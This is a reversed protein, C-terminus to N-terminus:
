LTIVRSFVASRFITVILSTLLSSPEGGHSGQSCGYDGVCSHSGETSIDHHARGKVSSLIESSTITHEWFYVKGTRLGSQHHM